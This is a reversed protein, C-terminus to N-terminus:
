SNVHGNNEEGTVALSSENMHMVAKSHTLGRNHDLSFHLFSLTKLCLHAVSKGCRVQKVRSVKFFTTM